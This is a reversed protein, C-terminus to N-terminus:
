LRTVNTTVRCEHVSRVEMQTFAHRGLLRVHHLQPMARATQFPALEPAKGSSPPELAAAARARGPAPQSPTAAAPSALPRRCHQACQRLSAIRSVVHLWTTSHCQTQPPMAHRRHRLSLISDASAFLRMRSARGLRAVRLSVRDANPNVRRRGVDARSCVTHQYAHQLAISTCKLYRRVATTIRYRHLNAHGNELRNRSPRGVSGVEGLNGGRSMCSYSM